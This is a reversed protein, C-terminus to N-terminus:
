KKRFSYINVLNNQDNKSFWPADPDNEYPNRIKEEPPSDPVDMIDLIMSLSDIIDVLAGSPFKLLEQELETHHKKHFIKRQRYYPILRTIRAKKDSRSKIEVINLFKQEEEMKKELYFKIAQQFAVTEIGVTIPLWKEALRYIEDILEGPDLRKATYELIFLEYDSNVGAVM